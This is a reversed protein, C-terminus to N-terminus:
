IELQPLVKEELLRLVEDVPAGRVDLTIEDAGKAALGRIKEAVENPDGFLHRSRVDGFLQATSGARELAREAEADNRGMVLISFVTVNISERARGAAEIAQLGQELEWPLPCNWGDALKATLRLMGPKRAAVIVQIKRKPRPWIQFSPEQSSASLASDLLTIAARCNALRKGTSLHPFGYDRCVQDYTMGGSGLGLRLRGPALSELTAAQKVLLSAERFPTSLVLPGIPLRTTRSSLAALLSWCELVGAEPRSVNVLHDPVWLGDLGIREAAHAAAWVQRPLVGHVPLILSIRPRRMITTEVRHHGPLLRAHNATLSGPSAGCM